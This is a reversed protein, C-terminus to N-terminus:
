NLLDKFSETKLPDSPAFQATSSSAPIDMNSFGCTFDFDHKVPPASPGAVPASECVQSLQHATDHGPSSTGRSEGVRLLVGLKTKAPRARTKKATPDM